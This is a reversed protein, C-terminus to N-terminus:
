VDRIFSDIQHKIYFPISDVHVALNLFIIFFTNSSHENYHFIYICSYTKMEEM